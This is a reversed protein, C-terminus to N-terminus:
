NGNVVRKLEVKSPLSGFPYYQHEVRDPFVKVIRFGSGDKGLPKGVPGTTIMQLKGDRGFSNRHWHGAFVASVEYEKLLNLIVKRRVKPIVFYQDEEDPDKLFLPHHMFLMTHNVVKKRSDALKEKLYRLHKDWEEPAKQPQQCICSNLVIFHCKDYFFDYYDSGIDRRYAALSEPTPINGVDHNGAVLYLPIKQNLRANIRKLISIQNADGPDQILDGTIVVFKPALRNAESIAFTHLNIEQEYTRKKGLKPGEIMGFQPDSMQIFFFPKAPPHTRPLIKVPTTAPKEKAEEGRAVSVYSSAIVVLSMAFAWVRNKAMPIIQM